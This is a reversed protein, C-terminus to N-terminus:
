WNYGNIDGLKITLVEILRSYDRVLRAQRKTFCLNNGAKGSSAGTNSQAHGLSRLSTAHGGNKWAAPQASVQHSILPFLVSKPYGYKPVGWTPSHYVRFDEHFWSHPITRAFSDVRYRLELVFSVISRHSTIYGVYNTSMSTWRRGFFVGFWLHWFWLDEM